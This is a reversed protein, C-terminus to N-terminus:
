DVPKSWQNGWGKYLDQLFKEWVAKERYPPFPVPRVPKISDWVINFQGNAQLKGIKVKKWTHHNNSDIYVIGGPGNFFTNKSIKLIDTPKVSNAEKAMQAWLYVSLYSSEMPDGIVRDKGYKKKFNKVFKINEERDISQFYNWTAYDGIMSNIDLYAFEPEAIAFSMSPIKEPTIGAARLEKFFPINSEGVITNIIVKPQTKAIKEIIHSVNKNGLPIYEEGLISGGLSTITEKAIENAVRPYIYDSGVLFFSKGLNDFSWKIGPIIQQNATAGVYIINPSQELGEYEMPYFLISNYKEVIPKIMKRSASTWGGIIAVVHEQTILKEAQKAFTPWDSKGDAIIPEIQRNLLGGKQNIEEIALLAAELGKTENVAMTGSLSFLLGVRIPREPKQPVRYFIISTAAVAILLLIIFLFYYINKKM